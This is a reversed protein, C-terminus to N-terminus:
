KSSYIVAVAVAAAAAAVAVAVAVAAAVAVAVVVKNYDHLRSVYKTLYHLTHLKIVQLM